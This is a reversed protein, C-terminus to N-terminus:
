LSLLRKEGRFIGQDLGLQRVVEGVLAPSRIIQIYTKSASEVVPTQAVPFGLFEKDPIQADIRVPDHPRVMVVASAEYREPMVAQIFSMGYAAIPTVIALALILLSHRRLVNVIDTAEM